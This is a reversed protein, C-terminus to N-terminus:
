NWEHNFSGDAADVQVLEQAQSKVGEKNLADLVSGALLPQEMEVPVHDLVAPSEYSKNRMENKSIM